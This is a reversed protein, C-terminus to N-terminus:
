ASRGLKNIVLVCLLIALAIVQSTSLFQIINEGRIKDGRLFELCFRICAYALLYFSILPKGSKYREFSIVFLIFLLVSEYLQVPHRYAKHLHVRLPFNTIAGYCCGALLCAIRGVGHGLALAPVLFTFQGLGQKTLKCFSLLYMLGFLMGGYFVFGGGLWFSASSSAMKVVEDELTLLFVVKAGIWSSVLLGWFLINFKRIKLEKFDILYKLLHYSFGWIMGMLLPYTYVKFNLIEILPFM